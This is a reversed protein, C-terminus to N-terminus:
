EVAIIVHSAKILATCSQGPTFAFGEASERTVIATLLKGGPLALQVESNVEGPILKIVTGTLRNRASIKVDADPSLLIFSSKILAIAPKGPKLHLDDIADNTINAFIELGEGLDLIVDGNVAGSIVQTVTGRYQNRASTKMTIARSPNIPENVPGAM